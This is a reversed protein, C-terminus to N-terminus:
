FYHDLAEVLFEITPLASEVALKNVEFIIINLKFVLEPM